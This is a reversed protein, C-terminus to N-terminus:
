CESERMLVMQASPKLNQTNSQSTRRAAGSVPESSAGKTDPWACDAASSAPRAEERGAAQRGRMVSLSSLEAPSPPKTRRTFRRPRM